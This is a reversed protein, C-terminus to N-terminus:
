CGVCMFWAIEKLLEDDEAFTSLFTRYHFIMSHHGRDNVIIDPLADGDLDGVWVISLYEGYNTEHVECLLQSRGNLSYRLSDHHVDISGWGELDWRDSTTVPETNVILPFLEGPSFIGDESRLYLYPIEGKNFVQLGTREGDRDLYIDEAPIVILVVDQLRCEESPDADNLFLGTWQEGTVANTEDGHFIGPALISVDSHVNANSQVLVLCFALLLSM